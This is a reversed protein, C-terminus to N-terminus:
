LWGEGRFHLRNVATVEPHEELWKVIEQHSPTSVPFGPRGSFAELVSRVVELDEPYDVTFRYLSEDQSPELRLFRFDERRWFIHTVHEKEGESPDLALAKRLSEQSFVSVDSGDAWLTPLPESNSVLDYDGQRFHELVLRVVGVDVLPCDGTVRVVTGLDFHLACDLYRKMVNKEEGRFVQFGRGELQFVLEDDSEQDTTAFVVEDVM